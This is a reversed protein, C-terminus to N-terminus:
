FASPGGGVFSPWEGCADTVVFSAMSAAGPTQRRVLLTVQSTGGPLSISAGNGAPSGNLLVVANEVRSFTIRQLGNSPTAPLTQASITAQLQGPGAPASTVAVNPRPSCFTPASTPAPPVLTPTPTPLAAITFTASTAAQLSGSSAVLTYGNGPVTVFLDTFTAVGNVINATPTGGLTGGGANTGFAVTLTGSFSTVLAGNGDEVRVIPQPALPAGVQAGGPQTGFVLRTAQIVTVTTSAIAYGGLSDLARVRVAYTGATLGAASFTPNQGPTEYRLSGNLDWAFSLPDGDPDSGTASLQVTSGALVTYPGGASVTPLEDLNAEQVTLSPGFPDTGGVAFLQRGGFQALGLGFTATPMPPLPTWENTAPDYESVTNSPLVSSGAAVSGGGAEILRGDLLGILGLYTRTFALQGIPSGSEWFGQPSGPSPLVFREVTSRSAGERQGGVAYLKGDGGPALGLGSRAISMTAMPQWAANTSPDYEYTEAHDVAPDGGGAAYLKGNSGLAFGLFGRPAPLQSIGDAAGRWTGGGGATPPTFEEVSTCAVNPCIPLTSIGGVVYIRGNTATVATAGRRATPMDTMPTWANTALDYRLVTKLPTTLAQSLGGFVYLKGNAVASAVDARREPMFVASPRAWTDTLPDYEDVTPLRTNGFAQGGIAYLRGNPATALGLTSRGPILEQRSTWLNAVPDYEDVERRPGGGNFGGAAYLKGNPAVALALDGREISLPARSRWTDTAPDYEEVTGLFTSSLGGVAYLKGNPAAALALDARPTPMPTKVVWSDTAPDYEELTDFVPGNNGGVAYLKGNSAAAVALFVRAVHLPARPTWHNTAPDYEEVETRPGSGNTGGVAYLKGNTATALGLGARVTPMPAKSAWTNTAPDYAEVTNLYSGDYGGIAYVIGDPGAAAGLGAKATTMPMKAGWDLRPTTGASRLQNAPLLALLGPLLILVMFRVSASTPAVFLRNPGRM